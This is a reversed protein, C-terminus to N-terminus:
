QNKCAIKLGYQCALKIYKDKEKGKLYEAYSYCGLANKNKECALKFYKKALNEKHAKYAYLAKNYYCVEGILLLPLFLLLKKM